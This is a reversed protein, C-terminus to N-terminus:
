AKPVSSSFLMLVGCSRLPLRIPELTPSALRTINGAKALILPISALGHLPDVHCRRGADRTEHEALDIRDHQKHRFLRGEGGLRLFGALAPLVEGIGVVPEIEVGGSQQHAFVQDGVLRIADFPEDFRGHLRPGPRDLIRLLRQRDEELVVGGNVGILRPLVEADRDLVDHGIRGLAFADANDVGLLHLARHFRTDCYKSMLPM